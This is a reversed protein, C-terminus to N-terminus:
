TLAGEAEKVTAATRVQYGQEELNDELTLRLNGDDEVVLVSTM